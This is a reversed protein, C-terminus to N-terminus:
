KELIKKEIDELFVMESDPIKRAEILENEAWDTLEVDDGINEKIFEIICKMVHWYAFTTFNVGREPDFLDVAEIIGIQAQQFVDEIVSNDNIKKCYKIAYKMGFGGNSIIIADRLQKYEKQRKPLLTELLRLKRFRDLNIDPAPLPFKKIYSDITKKLRSYPDEIKM